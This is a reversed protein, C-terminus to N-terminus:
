SRTGAEVPTPLDPPQVAALAAVLSDAPSGSTDLQVAAPWPTFDAAMAAAVPANAVFPDGTGARARLRDVASCSAPM